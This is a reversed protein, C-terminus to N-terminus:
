LLLIIIFIQSKKSKHSSFFLFKFFFKNNKIGLRKLDASTQLFSLNSTHWDYIYPPEVVSRRSYLESDYNPENVEIEEGDPGRVILKNDDDM